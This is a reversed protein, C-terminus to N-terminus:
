TVDGVPDGRDVNRGRRQGRGRGVRVAGVPVGKAGEETGKQTTSEMVTAKMTKRGVTRRQSPPRKKKLSDVKGRAHVALKGKRTPEQRSIYMKTTVRRIGRQPHEPELFGAKLFM